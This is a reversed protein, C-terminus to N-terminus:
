GVSESPLRTATRLEQPVMQCAVARHYYQTEEIKRGAQDKRTVRRELCSECRRSFSSLV